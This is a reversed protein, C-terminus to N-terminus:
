HIPLLDLECLVAQVAPQISAEVELTLTESFELRREIQVAYITIEDPLKVGMKRGMQLADSLTADHAANAHTGPLSDLTLRRLEGPRAGPLDISDILIAREYGVLREMLSLGGLSLREFVLGPHTKLALRAELADLIRWGIADDGLCPNGLGLIITAM